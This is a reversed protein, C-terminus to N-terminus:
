AVTHQIRVKFRTDVKAIGKAMQTNMEPSVFKKYVHELLDCMTQLIEIYDLSSPQLIIYTAFFQV